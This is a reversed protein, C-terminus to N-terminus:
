MIYNTGNYILSDISIKLFSPFQFTFMCNPLIKLWIPIFFIFFAHVIIQLCAATLSLEIYSSGDAVMMLLLIKGVKM